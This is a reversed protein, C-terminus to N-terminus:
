LPLWSGPRDQIALTLRPELGASVQLLTERVRLPHNNKESIHAVLVQRLGALPVADLLEAAQDNSLHGYRGGVRAQLAPPYPGTRLLEADYNCEIMLADCERLLDRAHATVYGSDTLMGLRAGASEFVFQCPERADHPVPYPIVKVDGIRFGSEHGSFLRIGPLEGLGTQRGTGPTTWVDIHYRAALSRVGRLHDGHEHTVLIADLEKAMVGVRSLRREAECMGFGCDILLRTEATEVLTANGRSGSGLSVFRM